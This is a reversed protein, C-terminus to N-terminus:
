SEVPTPEPTAQPRARRDERRPILELAKVREVQDNEFVIEAAAGFQDLFWELGAHLIDRERLENKAAVKAKKFAAEKAKLEKIFAALAKEDSATILRGALSTASAKKGALLAEAGIRISPLSEVNVAKGLGFKHRLAVFKPGKASRLIAKRRTTVFNFATVTKEDAGGPLASEDILPELDKAVLAAAAVLMLSVGREKFAGAKSEVVEKVPAIAAVNAAATARLRGGEAQASRGQEEIVKRGEEASRVKTPDSITTQGMRRRQARRGAGTSRRQKLGM